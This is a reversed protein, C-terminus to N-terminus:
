TGSKKVVTDNSLTAGSVTDVTIDYTPPSVASTPTAATMYTATFVEGNKQGTISGTLPPNSEGYERPLLRSPPIVRHTVKSCFFLDTGKEEIGPVM